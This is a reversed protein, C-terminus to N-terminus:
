GEAANVDSEYEIDDNVDVSPKEEKKANAKARREEAKKSACTYMKILKALANNGVPKITYNWLSDHVTDREINLLSEFQEKKMGEGLRLGPQANFSDFDCSISLGTRTTTNEILHKVLNANLLPIGRMNICIQGWMRWEIPDYKSFGPPFHHVEVAINFENSIFQLGVKWVRSRSSNGGGGDCLIVIREIYPRSQLIDHMFLRLERITLEPTNSGESLYVKGSDQYLLYFGQPILIRTEAYNWDYADVVIPCRKVCYCSGNFRNGTVIKHLTDMSVVLATQDNKYQQKVSMIFDLQKTVKETRPQPSLYKKNKQISYGLKNVIRAVTPPSIPIKEKRLEDSIMRTSKATYTRNTEPGGALPNDELIGRIIERLKTDASLEPLPQEILLTTKKVKVNTNVSQEIVQITATKTRPCQSLNGTPKGGLVVDLLTAVDQTSLDAFSVDVNLKSSNDGEFVEPPLARESCTSSDANESPMCDDGSSVPPPKESDENNSDQSDIEKLINSDDTQDVPEEITEEVVNNRRAENIQEINNSFEEEKKKRGAGPSRTRYPTESTRAADKGVPLAEAEKRGIRITSVAMGTENHFRVVSGHGLERCICGALVRRQREDLLSQMRAFVSICVNMCPEYWTDNKM